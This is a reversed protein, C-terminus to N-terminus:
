GEWCSLVFEDCSLVKCINFLMYLLLTVIEDHYYSNSAAQSHQHLSMCYDVSFSSLM